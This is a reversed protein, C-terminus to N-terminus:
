WGLTVRRKVQEDRGDGEMFGQWGSIKKNYRYNPSTSLVNLNQNLM